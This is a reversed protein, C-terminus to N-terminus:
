GLYGISMTETLCNYVLFSSHFITNTEQNLMYLDFYDSLVM